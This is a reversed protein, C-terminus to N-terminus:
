ATQLALTLLNVDLSGPKILYVHKTLWFHSKTQEQQFVLTSINEPYLSIQIYFGAEDQPKVPKTLPKSAM